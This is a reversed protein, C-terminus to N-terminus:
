PAGAEERLRAEVAALAGPDGVQMWLGEQQLGFLRGQDSARFWIDRLSFVARPDAYVPRPDLIEVGIAHLPAEPREGRHTLRGAEDQYFDGPSDEFGVTRDKPIVTVLADMRAPDWAEVLADLAPPGSKRWVYDSNCRFIPDEGLLARAHKVGGGTELLAEREDSVLFEADRRSRLYAEVQDAHAHVNVVVREVGAEILPDIVHAILPKGAVPALAKPLTLTLPRMRTGLGAAMVMATRPASM